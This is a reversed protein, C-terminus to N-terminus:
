YCYYDFLLYFSFYYKGQPKGLTILPYPYVMGSSNMQQIRGWPSTTNYVIFHNHHHCHHYLGYYCFNIIRSMYILLAIYVYTVMFSGCCVSHEFKVSTVHTKYRCLVNNEHNCTYIDINYIYIYIYLYIYKIIYIIYTYKNFYQNSKGQIIYIYIYIYM